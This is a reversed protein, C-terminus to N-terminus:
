SVFKFFKLEPSEFHYTFDHIKRGIWFGICAFTLLSLGFRPSSYGVLDYYYCVTLHGASLGASTLASLGTKKSALFIPAWICFIMTNAVPILILNFIPQAISLMFVSLARNEFRKEVVFSPSYGWFYDREYESAHELQCRHIWRELDSASYENIPGNFALKLSEFGSVLTFTLILCALSFGALLFYAFVFLMEPMDLGSISFLMTLFHYYVGITIVLWFIQATKYAFFNRVDSSQRLLSVFRYPVALLNFVAVGVYYAVWGIAVAVMALIAFFNGVLSLLVIVVVKSGPWHNHRNTLADHGHKGVTVLLAQSVVRRSTSRLIGVDGYELAGLWSVVFASMVAVLIGAVADALALSVLVGAILGAVIAFSYKYKSMPCDGEKNIGIWLFMKSKGSNEVFSLRDYLMQGYIDFAALTVV